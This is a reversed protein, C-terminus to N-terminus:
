AIKRQRKPAVEILDALSFRRLSIRDLQDGRVFRFSRLPITHNYRKQRALRPKAPVNTIRQDNRAPLREDCEIAAIARVQFVVHFLDM